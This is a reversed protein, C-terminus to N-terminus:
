PDLWPKDPYRVILQRYGGKLLSIDIKNREAWSKIELRESASILKIDSSSSALVDMDSNFNQMTIFLISVFFATLICIYVAGSWSEIRFTAYNKM